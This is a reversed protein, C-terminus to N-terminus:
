AKALIQLANKDWRLDTLLSRGKLEGRNINHTPLQRNAKGLWARERFAWSNRPFKFFLEITTM